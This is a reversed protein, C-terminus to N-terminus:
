YTHNIVYHTKLRNYPNNKLIFLSYSYKYEEFNAILYMDLRQQVIKVQVLTNNMELILILILLYFAKQIKILEQETGDM